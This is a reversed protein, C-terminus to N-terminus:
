YLKVLNHKNNIERFKRTARNEWFHELKRTPNKFNATCIACYETKLPGFKSTCINAAITEWYQLLDNTGFNIIAVLSEQRGMGKQM